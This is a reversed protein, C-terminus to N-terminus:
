PFFDDGARKTLKALFKETKQVEVPVDPEFFASLDM